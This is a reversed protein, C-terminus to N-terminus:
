CEGDMGTIGIINSSYPISLINQAGESENLNLDSSAVTPAISTVILLLICILAISKKM